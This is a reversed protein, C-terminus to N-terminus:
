PRELVDKYIQEFNAKAAPWDSNDLFHDLTKLGGRVYENAKGRRVLRDPREAEITGFPLEKSAHHAMEHVFSKRRLSRKTRLASKTQRTTM